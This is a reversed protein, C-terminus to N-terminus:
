CRHWHGVDQNTYAIAELILDQSANMCHICVTMHHPQEKAAMLSLVEQLCVHQKKGCKSEVDDSVGEAVPKEQGVLM